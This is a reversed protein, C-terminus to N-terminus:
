NMLLFLVFSQKSTPTTSLNNKNSPKPDIRKRSAKFKTQCTELGLSDREKKIQERKFNTNSKPRSNILFFIEFNRILALFFSYETELRKSQENKLFQTNPTVPVMFYALQPDLYGNESRM